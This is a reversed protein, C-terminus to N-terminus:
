QQQKIKEIDLENPVVLEILNNCSENLIFTKNGIMIGITKSCRAVYGLRTPIKYVELTSPIIEHTYLRNTSLPIMFVSNPYLTLDFSKPFNLLDNNSKEVDSKLRFRLKTLITVNKGYVYDFLDTSSNVIKKNELVADPKKAM